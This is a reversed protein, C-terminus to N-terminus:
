ILKLTTEINIKFIYYKSDIQEYEFLNSQLLIHIFDHDAGITFTNNSNTDIRGVSRWYLIPKTYFYISNCKHFKDITIKNNGISFEIM